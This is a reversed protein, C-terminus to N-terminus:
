VKTVPSLNKIFYSFREYLFSVICELLTMFFTDNQSYHLLEKIMTEKELMSVEVEVVQQKLSLRAPANPHHDHVPLQGVRAAGGAVEGVEEHGAEAV